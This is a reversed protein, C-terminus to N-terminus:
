SIKADILQLRSCFFHKLVRYSIKTRRMFSVIFNVWIELNGLNLRLGIHVRPVQVKCVCTLIQCKIGSTHIPRLVLTNTGEDIKSFDIAPKNTNVIRHTKQGVDHKTPTVVSLMVVNIIVVSLMTVNLIVVSLM